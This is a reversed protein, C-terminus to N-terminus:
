PVQIKQEYNENFVEFRFYAKERDDYPINAPYTIELVLPFVFSSVTLEKIDGPDSGSATKDMDSYSRVNGYKVPVMLEGSFGTDQYVRAIAAFDTYRNGSPGSFQRVLYINSKGSLRWLTDSSAEVRVWESGSDEPEGDFVGMDGTGGPFTLSAFGDKNSGLSVRARVDSMIFEALDALSNEAMATKHNSLGAPFLVFVATMGLSIVVIALMIEVLNFGYKRM